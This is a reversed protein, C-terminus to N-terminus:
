IMRVLDKGIHYIVASPSNLQKLADIIRQLDEPHVACKRAAEELLEYSAALKRMADVYAAQPHTLKRMADVYAAQPHTLKRM